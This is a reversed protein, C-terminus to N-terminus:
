RLSMLPRFILSGTTVMAKLYAIPGRRDRPRRRPPPLDVPSSVGRPPEIRAGHMAARRAAMREELSPGQRETFLASVIFALGVM